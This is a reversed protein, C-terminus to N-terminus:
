EKKNFIVPGVNKVYVVHDMTYKWNKGSLGAKGLM